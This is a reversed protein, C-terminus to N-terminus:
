PKSENWSSAMSCDGTVMADFQINKAQLLALIAAIDVDPYPSADTTFFIQGGPKVHNAAITVAEGSAEPCAGGGQAKLSEVAKLVTSLDKTFAKITVEDKFVVLATLPSQNAELKGILERLATKVGDIEGQMSGTVDIVLALDVQIESPIAIPVRVRTSYSPYNSSTVEAVQTLVLLGADQLSLDMNVPKPGDDRNLDALQCIVKPLQSTDCQGWQNDIAKLIVGEPLSTVLKLDNAVAEPADASLNVTLVCHLEQLMEVPNPTCNITTFLYPKIEKTTVVVDAPYEKSSITTTNSLKGAQTPSVVLKVQAMAGPTLDPLTCSVTNVDCQGGALSTLSVLTTTAPLVDTLVVETATAAGTNTVTLLYTINNGQQLTNSELKAKLVLLSTPKFVPNCPQGDSVGCQQSTFNYGAKSATITYEGEFLGTIKWSGKEDTVTTQDGIAVLTGALPNGQKDLIKGAAIYTQRKDVVDEQHFHPTTDDVLKGPDVTPVGQLPTLVIPAEKELQQWDRVHFTLRLQDPQDSRYMNIIGYEQTGIYLFPAVAPPLALWQQRPVDVILVLAESYQVADDGIGFVMPPDFHRLEASVVKIDLSGEPAAQVLTLSIAYLLIALTPYKSFFQTLRNM